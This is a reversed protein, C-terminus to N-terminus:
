DESIAANKEGAKEQFMNSPFSLRVRRLIRITEGKGNWEFGEGTLLLKERMLSVPKESEARLAKRDVTAQQARIEVETEGEPTFLRFEVGDADIKGDEVPKAKKAILEHKLTGDPYFDVPVRLGELPEIERETALCAGCVWVVLVVVKRFLKM